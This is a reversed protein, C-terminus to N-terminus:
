LVELNDIPQLAIRIMDDSHQLGATHVSLSIVRPFLIDSSHITTSCKGPEADLALAYYTM